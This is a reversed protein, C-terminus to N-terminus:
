LSATFTPTLLATSGFEAWMAYAIPVIGWHLGFMVFVQWLGGLIVGAVVPSFEQMSSISSGLISSAFTSIPGIVIFTAPVIIVLTTLPVLFSKFISPIVKKAIKEIKSAVFTSIIIPIVSSAYSMLIVPIGLFTIYVPSQFITGEFLTYLVEGQTIGALTPYVLSAGIAMGIFHNLKFKLSATYGLFIPFFYFMCDGIINFIAYTGSNSDLVGIAVFLAVFGKIMGTACLIGLCPQFIGSIIDIFSNLPSM